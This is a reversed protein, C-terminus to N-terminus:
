GSISRGHHKWRESDKSFQAYLTTKPKPQQFLSTQLWRLHQHQQVPPALFLVELAPFSSCKKQPQKHLFGEQLHDGPWWAKSRAVTQAVVLRLLAAASASPRLSKTLVGCANTARVTPRPGTCPREVRQRGLAATSIAADISKGSLAPRMSKSPMCSLPVDACSCATAVIVM